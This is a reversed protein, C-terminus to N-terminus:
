SNTIVAVKFNSSGPVGLYETQNAAMRRNTATATPSTGINVSCIADTHLRILTTNSQFASSQASTGSIAVTQDATKIEQGVPINSGGYQGSQAFETIYLVAM